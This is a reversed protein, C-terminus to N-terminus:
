PMTANLRKADDALTTTWNQKQSCDGACTSLFLGNTGSVTGNIALALRGTEDADIALRRGYLGVQDLVASSWSGPVGCNGACTFYGVRYSLDASAQKGLNVAVSVRGDPAITADATVDDGDLLGTVGSWSAQQDCSSACSWVELVDVPTANFDYTVCSFVMAGSPSVAVDPASCARSSFAIPKWSAASRCGSTCVLAQMPSGVGLGLIMAEGAVGLYHSPNRNSVSPPLDLKTWSWSASTTCDADCFGVYDGYTGTVFNDIAVRVKGDSTVRIVPRDVSVGPDIVGSSWSSATACNSACRLYRLASDSGFELAHIVGAGDIAVASTAASLQPLPEVVSAGSAGGGTGGAGGGTGGGSSGGGGACAVLLTATVVGYIARM